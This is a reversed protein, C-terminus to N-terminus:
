LGNEKDITERLGLCLNNSRGLKPEICHRDCNASAAYKNGVKNYIINKALCRMIDSNSM